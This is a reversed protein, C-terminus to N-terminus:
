ECRITNQLERLVVRRSRQHKFAVRVKFRCDGDAIHELWLACDIRHATRRRCGDFGAQVVDPDERLAAVLAHAQAKATSRKLTHASAGAPALLMGAAIALLFSSIKTNM